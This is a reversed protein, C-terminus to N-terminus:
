DGRRQRGGCRDRGKGGTKRIWPPFSPHESWSSRVPSASKDGVTATIVANGASVATLLGNPAVTAVATNDSSFSVTKDADAGAEVTAQLMMSGGEALTVLETDFAVSFIRPDSVKGTAADYVCGEAMYGEVVPDPTDNPAEGKRFTGGSVYPNGTQQARYIASIGGNYTGGYVFTTADANIGGDGGKNDNGIYIAYKPSSYTGGYIYGTM